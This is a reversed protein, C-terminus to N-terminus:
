TSSSAVIPLIVATMLATNIADVARKVAGGSPDDAAIQEIRAKLERKKMGGSEQELVRHAADLGQLIALITSDQSLNAVQPPRPKCCAM